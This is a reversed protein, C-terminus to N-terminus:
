NWLLAIILRKLNEAFEFGPFFFHSCYDGWHCYQIWPVLLACVGLNFLFFFITTVPWERRLSILSFPSDMFWWTVTLIEWHFRRFYILLFLFSPQLYILSCWKEHLSLHYIISMMSERFETIFITFFTVFFEGFVFRTKELINSLFSLFSMELFTVSILLRKFIIALLFMKIKSIVAVSKSFCSVSKLFLSSWTFLRRFEIKASLNIFYKHDM